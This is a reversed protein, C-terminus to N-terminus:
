AFAFQTTGNYEAYNSQMTVTDGQQMRVNGYAKFFNAQDYHIAQDCWIEIGQHEFYVQNNVKSLIIAGPYNKEDKLTRDSTYDIKKVEQAIAYPLKLLCIFLLSINLLSM